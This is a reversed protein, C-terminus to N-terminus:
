KKADVKSSGWDENVTNGETSKGTQLTPEGIFNEWFQPGYRKWAHCGFPLTHNTMEYLTAPNVEFSFHMAESPPAIKLHKNIRPLYVAFLYDEPITTTKLFFYAINGFGYRRFIFNPINLINSILRKKKHKSYVEQWNQMYRFLSSPSLIKIMTSVKRLSFGGNGAIPLLKSNATARVFGEFWPAGIYDYNKDMWLPLEDRFVWADLQYILLYDFSTFKNYFGARLLLRSYAVTSEFHRDHFKEIKFEINSEQYVREYYLTSLSEPAMLVIPYKGLIHFCQKLSLEELPSLTDKYAPVVVVCKNNSLM